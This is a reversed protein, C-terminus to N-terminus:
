GILQLRTLAALHSYDNENRLRVKTICDKKIKRPKLYDISLLHKFGKGGKGNHPTNIM